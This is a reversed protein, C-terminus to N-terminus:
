RLPAVLIEEPTRAPDGVVVIQEVAPQKPAPAKAGVPIRGMTAITGAAIIAWVSILLTPIVVLPDLKM